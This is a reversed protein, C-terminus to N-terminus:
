FLVPQGIVLPHLAVLILYVILGACLRLISHTTFAPRRRQQRLENRMEVWQEAGFERKKRLDVLGQGLLAFLSLTGFLLVHALDGNMLLHLLAWLALAVLLPHRMYGVIGSAAPDFAANNRGGFSFPNPRGIAMALILCTILMGLWVVPRHWSAEGWLGVFPAHGAAWILLGLMVLSLASYAATFGRSGMKRVVYAKVPPRVPLSHTAFFLAFVAAFTAWSIM